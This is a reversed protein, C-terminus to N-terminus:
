NVRLSATGTFTKSYQYENGTNTTNSSLTFRYSITDASDRTFTIPGVAGIGYSLPTDSSEPIITAWSLGDYKLISGYGEQNNVYVNNFADISISSPSTLGDSPSGIAVWSLGDYKMIAGAGPISVYVNDLLDVAIDLPTTGFDSVSAISTWSIGDYKLITNDSSNINAVYINNQSDIAVGTPVSINDGANAFESWSAGDYKVISSSDRNAVYLNGFFDVAMGIPYNLGDSADGLASVTKGNYKFVKNEDGISIYLNGYKDSAIHVLGCCDISFKNKWGNDYELLSLSESIAYIRPSLKVRDDSLNFTTSNQFYPIGSDTDVGITASTGTSTVFQLSSASAGITAPTTLSVADHIKHTIFDSIFVGQDEVATIAETKIRTKQTIVYLASIALVILSLGAIYLMIEMLTFGTASPKMRKKLIKRYYKKNNNAQTDM